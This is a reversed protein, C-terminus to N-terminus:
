AAILHHLPEWDTVIALILATDIAVGVLLWPHFGILLLALSALSGLLALSRWWDLPVLWGVLALASFLYALIALTALSVALPFAAGRLGLAALAGRDLRFPYAAPDPAERLFYSSHILAHFALFVALGWRIM